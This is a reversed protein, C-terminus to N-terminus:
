VEMGGFLPGYCQEAKHKRMTTRMRQSRLPKDLNRWAHAANESNTVMELNEARNDTKIGNKHNVQLNPSYNPLYVMAVLRHIRYCKRGDLADSWPVTIRFGLYGKHNLCPSYVYGDRRRTVTGDSSIDYIKLLEDREWKWDTDDCVEIPEGIQLNEVRNDLPNGNKHVIKKYGGNGYDLFAKAVLIDVWLNKMNLTVVARGNYNRVNCICEPKYATHKVAWRGSKYSFAHRKVRGLSSVEYREFGEIGKWIENQEM